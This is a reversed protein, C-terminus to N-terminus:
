RSGGSAATASPLQEVALLLLDVFLDPREWLVGIHGVDPITAVTFSPAYKRFAAVDTSARGSHIGAIPVKVQAIM